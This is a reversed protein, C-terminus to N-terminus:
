RNEKTAELAAKAALYGRRSAQPDIEPLPGLVDAANRIKPAVRVGPAWAPWYVPNTIAAPTQADVDQACTVMAIATLHPDRECVKGLAHMIGHFNWEPRLSEVLKALLIATPKMMPM